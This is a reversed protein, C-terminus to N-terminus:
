RNSGSARGLAFVAVIVVALAAIAGPLLLDNPVGAIIEEQKAAAPQGRGRHRTQEEEEEDFFQKRERLVSEPPTVPKPLAPQPDVTAALPPKEPDHVFLDVKERHALRSLSIAEILDENTTISVTDGENDLYSLAFGSKSIKGYDFTPAGGLADVESGLKASVNAVMEEIGASAVVQLRHVRGSPAKFKFAFPMDEMLTAAAGGLASADPSNGVHSASDNPLVSDGRDHISPRHDHSVMSREPTGPMIHSRGEGSMMSETENDM